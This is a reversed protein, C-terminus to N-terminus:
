YENDTGEKLNMIPGPENAELMEMYRPAYEELMEKPITRTLGSDFMEQPTQGGSTFSFTDPLDGSAVMLNTQESDWTDVKTNVIKVNFQEELRKQVYSDDKANGRTFSGSLNLTVEESFDGADPLSAVDVTGADKKGGSSCGAFVLMSSLAIATLAKKM